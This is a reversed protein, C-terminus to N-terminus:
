AYIEARPGAKRKMDFYKDASGSIIGLLMFWLVITQDFYGVSLFSVVHALLTSGFAWVLFQDEFTGNKLLSISRGVYKFGIVIVSIFLILTISGGNVAEGIYQNTIDAKSPDSPLPNYPMWHITVKTGILWWEDFHNIAQEILNARYWGTGGISESIRAALYWIPANMYLHLSVLALLLAIRVVRMRERIPWMALGVVGAFFSLLPGSSSSAYLVALASIVGAVAIIKRNRGWWLSVILPVLTAGFTGAMIPHRFPGQCRVTGERVQSFEPVGGFTYFLNLGSKKEVIMMVALPIILISTFIVVRRVDQLDKIYFRFFFYLGLANFAHGMKYTFASTTQYLITYTIVSVLVWLILINDMSTIRINNYDRRFVVRTWAFLILIRISFFNLGFIDFGVGITLYFSAVLLPFVAYRKPLILTLIGLIVTATTGIVSTSAEGGM